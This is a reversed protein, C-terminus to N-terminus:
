PRVTITLRYRQPPDCFPALHAVDIRYEADATAKASVLRGTDPPPSPLVNGAAPMSIRVTADHGRFGDIRAQITEGRRVAAVFSDLNRRVLWGAYTATREGKPEAFAIREVSKRGEVSPAKPLVRIRSIRYRGEKLPAWIAGDALLLGDPTITVMTAARDSAPLEAAMVACRLEPTFISDYLRVLAASDKVPITFPSALVTLPYSVMAAVTRRDVSDVARKLDALFEGARAPALQGASPRALGALTLALILGPRIRSM